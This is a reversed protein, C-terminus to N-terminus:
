IILDQAEKTLTTVLTENRVILDSFEEAIKGSKEVSGQAVEMKTKTQYYDRELNVLIESKLKLEESTKKLQRECSAKDTKVM